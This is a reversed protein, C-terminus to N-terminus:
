VSSTAWDDLVEYSDRPVVVLRIEGSDSGEVDALGMFHTSYPVGSAYRWKGSVRYGGDVPCAPRTGPFNGVSLPAVFHGDPGAIEAQAEKSFSSGLQLAHGAGLCLMWGTSPCGRAIEIITRYFTQIDFEYGGFMRPQLMRYFGAEVFADHMDKSYRSNAETDAQDDRLRSRLAVARAVMQDPRLAPEPVNFSM